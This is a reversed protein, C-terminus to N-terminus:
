SGDSCVHGERALAVVADGTCFTIRGGELVGLCLLLGGMEGLSSSYVEDGFMFFVGIFLVSTAPSSIFVLNQALFMENCGNLHSAFM